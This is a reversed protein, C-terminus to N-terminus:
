RGLTLTRLLLQKSTNMVEVSARYSKSTEMMEAMEEIPNVNPMYIYGDNDAMPHSPNFEQRAPSPDEVYGSVHVKATNEGAEDLLTTFVPRRARYAGEASSSVVQANAMNTAVTNLRISQASLASGSLEFVNFLSM